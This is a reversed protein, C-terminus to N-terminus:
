APSSAEDLRPALDQGRRMNAANNHVLLATLAVHVVFALALGTIAKFTPVRKM